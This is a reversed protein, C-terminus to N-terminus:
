PRRPRAAKIQYPELWFIAARFQVMKRLKSKSKTIGVYDAIRELVGPFGELCANNAPKRTLEKWVTQHTGSSIAGDVLLTAAKANGLKESCIARLADVTYKRPRTTGLLFVSFSENAKIFSESWDLFFKLIGDSGYWRKELNKMRCLASKIANLDINGDSNDFLGNLIFWKALDPYRLTLNESGKERSCLSLCRVFPNIGIRKNYRTVDEKAGHNFLWKVVAIQNWGIASHMPQLAIFHPETEHEEKPATTTAGRAHYLYRCMPLDGARAFHAMPTINHWGTWNIDSKAGLDSRATHVDDPDFGAERLKERATKDDEVPGDANFTKQRKAAPQDVDSSM